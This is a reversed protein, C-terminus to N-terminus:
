IAWDNFNISNQMNFFQNFTTKSMSIMMKRWEFNLLMIQCLIEICVDFMSCQVVMNADLDLTLTTKMKLFIIDLFLCLLCKKSYISDMRLLHQQNQNMISCWVKLWSYFTNEGGKETWISDEMRLFNLILLSENWIIYECKVINYSLRISFKFNIIKENPFGNMGQIYIWAYHETNLARNLM